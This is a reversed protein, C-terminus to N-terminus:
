ECVRARKAVPWGSVLNGLVLGRATRALDSTDPNVPELYEGRGGAEQWRRRREALIRELLASAPEYDRGEARALEAETPVLRGEVAAKLVSARYRKLNRQVQELTAVADDLRTFYSEIAEVILRQQRRPAIPVPMALLQETNIGDRTMGHNVSRVFDTVTRSGRVFYVFFHPDIIEPELRLRMLHYNFLAGEFGHGVLGARGVTAMRSFLLDGHRLRYKELAEAKSPRVFVAKRQDLGAERLCGITLVPVNGEADPMFDSSGMSTGFPGTLVAQDGSVSLDEVISWEWNPPLEPLQIPGSEKDAPSM